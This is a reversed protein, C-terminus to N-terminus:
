KREPMDFIAGYKKLSGLLAYIASAEDVAASYQELLKGIIGDSKESKQKKAKPVKAGGGSAKRMKTKGAFKAAKEKLAALQLDPLSIGVVSGYCSACLMGHVAHKKRAMDARKCNECIGREMDGEKKPLSSEKSYEQYAKEAEAIEDPDLPWSYGEDFCYEKFSLIKM